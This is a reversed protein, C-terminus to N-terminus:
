VNAFEHLFKEQSRVVIDVHAKSMPENSALALAQATRVLNKITRGNFPKEALEDLEAESMTAVQSPDELLVMDTPTSRGSGGADKTKVGALEFFKRWIVRRSHLDHEPYKIAISFRSLFAADFVKVRNTTLFLVGRHYELVRLVVSVLSNREIEHLSRQELLVDAEDILLVADWATAIDLISKLKTELESPVTSLESTGVVYLPRELHEAVAEATLTKGTGPPGHLVCILGGGKGTIVDSITKSAFSNSNRTVQVLSKILVKTAPDLVLHDWANHDFSVPEIETVYFTSRMKKTLNFGHVCSPLLWLHEEPFDPAEGSQPLPVLPHPNAGGGYSRYHVGSLATYLRGRAILKAEMEPTLPRCELSDLDKTGNYFPIAFLVPTQLYSKGDWSYATGTLHVGSAKYYNRHELCFGSALLDHEICGNALQLSLKEAKPKYLELLYNTLVSLHERLESLFQDVFSEPHLVNKAEQCGRSAAFARKDAINSETADARLHVGIDEIVSQLVPIDPLMTDASREPSGGYFDGYFTRLVKLLTESFNSLVLDGEDGPMRHRRNVYFYNGLDLKPVVIWIQERILYHEKREVIVDDETTSESPQANKWVNNPANCEPGHLHLCM